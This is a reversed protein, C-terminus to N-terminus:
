RQAKFSGQVLRAEGVCYGGAGPVDYWRWIWAMFVGYKGYRACDYIHQLALIVRLDRTKFCPYFLDVNAHLSVPSAGHELTTRTNIAHM